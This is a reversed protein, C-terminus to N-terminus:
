PVPCDCRTVVDEGVSKRLVLLADSATVRGNCDHDGCQQELECLSSCGDGDALNGDDCQEDGTVVGDGCRTLTCAGDVCAARWDECNYVPRCAVPGCCDHLRTALQDALDARVAAQAGGNNCPCCDIADVVVCDADVSCDRLGEIDPTCQADAATFALLLTLHAVVASTTRYSCTM